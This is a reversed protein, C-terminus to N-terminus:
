IARLLAFLGLAVLAVAVGALLGLAPAFRGFTDEIEDADDLDDEAM